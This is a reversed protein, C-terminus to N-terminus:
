RIRARPSSGMSLLLTVSAAFKPITGSPKTLVLFGIPIM